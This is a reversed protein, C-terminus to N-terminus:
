TLRRLNAYGGGLMVKLRNRECLVVSRRTDSRSECPKQHWALIPHRSEYYSVGLRSQVKAQCEKSCMTYKTTQRYKRAFQKGCNDCTRTNKKQIHKAKCESSCYTNDRKSFVVGCGVCAKKHKEITELKRQERRSLRIMNAEGAMGCEEWEQGKYDGDRVSFRDRGVLWVM